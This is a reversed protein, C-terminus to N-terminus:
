DDEDDEDNDDHIGDSDDDSDADDDDSDDDDDDSNDDWHDDDEDDDSDVDDDDENCLDAMQEVIMALRGLALGSRDPKTVVASGLKVVVKKVDKLEARSQALKYLVSCQHLARLNNRLTSSGDLGVHSALAIRNAISHHLIARRLPFM